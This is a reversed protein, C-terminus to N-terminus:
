HKATPKGTPKVSPTPDPGLLNHSPEPAPTTPTASESAGGHTDDAEDVEDAHDGSEESDESGDAADHASEDAAPSASPSPSAAPTDPTNGLEAVARGAGDDVRAVVVIEVRRNAAMAKASTGKDIPHTDAFGSSNMRDAAFHHATLLYRLVGNARDSSLEWNSPFQPTSIPNSDTHGDIILHNPLTDLTPAIVDLIRRGGPLLTADGSAFLVKDTAISVVLGRQDFRFSAQKTLGAQKLAKELQAQAKKLNEVEAKVSAKQTANVLDAVREANEEVNLANTMNPNPNKNGAIGGLNPADGSIKGGVSLLQDAGSLMAVPAGFGASLGTKLAMFKKTDVQSIAFMVIFLVMLLTMMDAYSVLWREHNEHEEHEEEHGRRKGHGGGGDSM